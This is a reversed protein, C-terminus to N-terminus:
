RNPTGHPSVGAGLCTAGGESPGRLQSSAGPLAIFTRVGLLAAALRVVAESRAQLGVVFSTVAFTVDEPCLLCLRTSTQLADDYMGCISQARGLNSLACIQNGPSMFGQITSLLRDVADRPDGMLISTSAQYIDSVVGPELRRLVVMIEDYDITTAGHASAFLAEISETATGVAELTGRHMVRRQHADARSVESLPKNYGRSAVPDSFVKEQYVGRLAAATEERYVQLLHREAPTWGATGASASPIDATAAISAERPTVRFLGSRPDSGIERLLERVEPDLVLETM